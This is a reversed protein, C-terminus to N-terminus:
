VGDIKDVRRPSRSRTTERPTAEACGDEPIRWNEQLEQAEMLTLSTRPEWIRMLVISEMRRWWDLSAMLAMTEMSAMSWDSCKSLWKEWSCDVGFLKWSDVLRQVRYEAPCRLKRPTILEHAVNVGIKRYGVRHADFEVGSDM